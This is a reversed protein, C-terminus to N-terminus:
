GDVCLNASSDLSQELRDNAVDDQVSLVCLALSDGNKVDNMGEVATAGRDGAKTGLRHNELRSPETVSQSRPPERIAGVQNGTCVTKLPTAM